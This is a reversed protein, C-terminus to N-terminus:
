DGAEAAAPAVRCAIGPPPDFPADLGPQLLLRYRLPGLYSGLHCEGVATYGALGEDILRSRPIGWRSLIVLAYRRSAFGELLEIIGPTRAMLLPTLDAIAMCVPQGAVFYAYDPRAAFLPGEAAVAGVYGYFFRATAEDRDSPLPFPRSAALSLAVLGLLLQATATKRGAPPGTVAEGRDEAPGLWRGTSIALASLFPLLYSWYAGAKALAPIVLAGGALLTVAGDRWPARRRALAWAFAGAAALALPWAAKMFMTLLVAVQSPFRPHHRYLGLSWFFGGDTVVQLVVAAGLGCGIVLGSLRWASSRDVFFWAAILPAGLVLATPKFAVAVLLWGGGLILRRATLRDAGPALRAPVLWLASALWSATMPGDVRVLMHWFTLDLPALALAAAITGVAWGSRKSVLRAVAFLGVAVFLAMLVRAWPLPSEALAVIPALAVALLPTYIMPYPSVRKPYLSSPDEVLRRAYDVFLGEDPGWDWAFSVLALANVAYAVLVLAACGLALAQGWDAWGRPVRSRLSRWFAPNGALLAM